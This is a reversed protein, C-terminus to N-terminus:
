LFWWFYTNKGVLRCFVQVSAKSLLSIFHFNKVAPFLIQWSLWWCPLRHAGPAPDEVPEAPDAQRCHRSCLLCWYGSSVRIFQNIRGNINHPKTCFPGVKISTNSATHIQSWRSVWPQVSPNCASIGRGWGLRMFWVRQHTDGAIKVSVGPWESAGVIQTSSYYTDHGSVGLLLFCTTCLWAVMVSVGVM